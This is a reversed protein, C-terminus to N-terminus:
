EPLLDYRALLEREKDLVAFPYWNPRVLGPGSTSAGGGAKNVFEQSLKQLRPCRPAADLLIEIARFMRNIQDVDGFVTLSENLIADFVELSGDLLALVTARTTIGEGDIGGTKETAPVVQLMGQRMYIVVAEGDLRIRASRAGVVHCMRDYAEPDCARLGEVLATIYNGLTM